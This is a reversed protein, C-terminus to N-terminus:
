LKRKLVLSILYLSGPVLLLYSLYGQRPGATLGWLIELDQVQSYAFSIFLSTIGFINLSKFLLKPNLYLLSIMIFVVFIIIFFRIEYWWYVVSADTILLGNRILENGPM